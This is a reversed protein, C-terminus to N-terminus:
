ALNNSSNNKCMKTEKFPFFKFNEFQFNKFDASLKIM